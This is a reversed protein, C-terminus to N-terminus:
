SHEGYEHSDDCASVDPREECGLGSDSSASRDPVLLSRAAAITAMEDISANERRDQERKWAQYRRTRLTEVAKRRTSAKLLEARARELRQYVGSLQLALRQTRLQAHISAHAQLRVGRIDATAVSTRPDPVLLDRLDQKHSAIMSQCDRIQSELAVRERELSAVALKAQDELYRRQVLVAELEFTFRAM